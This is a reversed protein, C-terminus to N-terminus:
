FIEIDILILNKTAYSIADTKAQKFVQYLTIYVNMVM